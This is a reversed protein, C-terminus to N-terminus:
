RQAWLEVVARKTLLRKTDYWFVVKTIFRDGDGTLEIKRTEGGAPIEKRLTVDQVGGNRYHIKVDHFHVKSRKAKLKIADFLGRKAGVQIEDRDIVRKVTRTGLKVWKDSAAAFELILLCGLLLFGCRALKGM